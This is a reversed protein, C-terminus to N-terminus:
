ALKSNFIIKWATVAADRVRRFFGHHTFSQILTYLPLMIEIRDHMGRLDTSAEQQLQRLQEHAQVLARDAEEHMAAAWDANLQAPPTDEEEEAPHGSLQKALRRGAAVMEAMDPAAPSMHGYMTVDRLAVFFGGMVVEGLREFIMIRVPHPLDLFGSKAFADEPCDVERDRVFLRNAEFLATVGKALDEDTVGEATLWDKFYDSWNVMDLGHFVERLMPLYIYAIDRQPAYPMGGPDSKPRYQHITRHTTM